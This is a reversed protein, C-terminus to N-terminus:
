KNICTDQDLVVYYGVNYLRFEDSPTLLIFAHTFFDVNEPKKSMEPTSM